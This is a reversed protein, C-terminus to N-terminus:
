LNELAVKYEGGMRELFFHKRGLKLFREVIEPSGGTELMGFCNMIKLGCSLAEILTNSCADQFFSYLLYDHNRYIDAMTEQNTIEGIYRVDEGLYFDFNYDIMDQSFGKGVISLQKPKDTSQFGTRALEWNKTDDTSSRAYLYRNVGSLKASTLPYFISEDCANLIVLSRKPKLYDDLLGKAFESQYIVLDAWSAFDKMRSMGSNRNRSNRLINDVRLVIKKKDDMAKVVDERKVMSASPIFYTDAKDYDTILDPIAKNLNRIFTWGGGFANADYTPLCIM